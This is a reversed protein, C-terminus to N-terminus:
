AATQNVFAPAPAVLLKPATVADPWAAFTGSVPERNNGKFNVFAFERSMM